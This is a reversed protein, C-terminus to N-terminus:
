RWEWREKGANVDKACRVCATYLRGYPDRGRVVEVHKCWIRRLLLRPTAAHRSLVPNDFVGMGKGLVSMFWSMFWFTLCLQIGMGIIAVVLRAWGLADSM